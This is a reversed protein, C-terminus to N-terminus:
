ELRFITSPTLLLFAAAFCLTGAESSKLCTPFILNLHHYPPQLCVQSMYVGNCEEASSGSRPRMDNWSAGLPPRTIWARKTTKTKKEICLFQSKFGEASLSTRLVLFISILRQIGGFCNNLPNGRRYNMAEMQTWLQMPIEPDSRFGWTKHNGVTHSSGSVPVGFYSSPVVSFKNNLTSLQLSHRTPKHNVTQQRKNITKEFLLKKRKSVVGRTTHVNNSQNHM